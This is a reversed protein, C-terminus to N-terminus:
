LGRGGVLPLHALLWRFTKFSIIAIDVAIVIGLVVALEVAPIISNLIQAYGAMLEFSALTETTYGTSDPLIGILASLVYAGLYVFGTFIM